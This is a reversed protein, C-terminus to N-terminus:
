QRFVVTIDVAAGTSPKCAPGLAAMDVANTDAAKVVTTSPTSGDSPESAPSTGVYMAFAVTDLASALEGCAEQQVGRLTYIFGGNAPLTGIAETNSFIYESSGSLVGRIAWTTGSTARESPWIGLPGLVTTTAGKTSAQKAFHRQVKVIVAASDRIQNTVSNSLLVARTGMLAGVLIVAVIAMAVSLEM